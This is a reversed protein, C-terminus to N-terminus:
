GSSCCTKECSQHDEFRNGNGGCEGYAFLECRKTSSTNCLQMPDKATVLKLNFPVAVYM